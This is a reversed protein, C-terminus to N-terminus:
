LEGGNWGFDDDDPSNAIGDNDGQVAHPVDVADDDMEDVEGVMIRFQHNTAIWLERSIAFDNIKDFCKRCIKTPM